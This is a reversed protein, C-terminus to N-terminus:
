RRNRIIGVVIGAVIVLSVVICVVLFWGICFASIVTVTAGAPVAASLSKGEASEQLLISGRLMEISLGLAERSKHLNRAFREDEEMSKKIIEILERPEALSNIAELVEEGLAEAEEDRGPLIRLEQRLDPGIFEDRLSMYSNLYYFSAIATETVSLDGLPEIAIDRGIDDEIRFNSLSREVLQEIYHPPEGPKDRYLYTLVGDLVMKPNFSDEENSLENILDIIDSAHM